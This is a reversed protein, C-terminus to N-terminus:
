FRTWFLFMGIRDSNSFHYEAPVDKKYYITTNPLKHLAGYLQSLQSMDKPYINSVYNLVTRNFDILNQDVYDQILFPKSLTTAMGHDSVLIVNMNSLLNNKELSDLIYGVIGDM